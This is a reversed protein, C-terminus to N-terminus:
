KEVFKKFEKVNGLMNTRFHRPFECHRSEVLHVTRLNPYITNGIGDKIQMGFHKTLNYRDDNPDMMTVMYDCDESLNGTDKITDSTPFINDKYYKANNIDTVSRNTHIIHVFTDGCWNKIMTTYEIYKDVTQKLQWGRELKIKRLHDTIVIHYLKENKPEYGIIKFRDKGNEDKGAPEKIFTGRKDAKEMLYHFMGTPNNRTDVFDIVGPKILVGKSSYEGFLPILREQYVKKLLIQIDTSVTILNGDDDQLRGRLYKASMQVFNDGKHTVGNPLDVTFIGHDYYMFFSAFDFEKSVRDIEFSFYTWSIEINHEISYLYPHLIFANDVITSKGVKPASAIGYMSRRQVGGIHRSFKELGEGMPIGKNGGSQGKKFEVAFNM